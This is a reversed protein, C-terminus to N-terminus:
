KKNGFTEILTSICVAVSLIIGAEAISSGGLPLFYFYEPAVAKAASTLTLFVSGLVIIKM